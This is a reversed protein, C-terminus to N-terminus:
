PKSCLKNIGNYISSDGFNRACEVVLIDSINYESFFNKIQESGGHFFDPNILIVNEYYPTLWPVLAKSYEDGIVVLTKGNKGDGQLISHSFFSGIFIDYGRRSLAVTPAKYTLYENHTIRATITQNNPVGQLIYYNVYDPFDKLSEPADPLQRLAGSYHDFRYGYYESIGKMDIGASKCFEQAGYYAGLATWSTDTRFFLYNGKHKLLAGAADISKVDSPMGAYIEAIAGNIDDSYQKYIGDELSIRTPVLMLYKNVGDPISTMVNKLAESTKYISGANYHFRELVRDKFYVYSESVLAPETELQGGGPKGDVGFVPEKVLAEKGDLTNTSENVTKLVATAYISATIVAVAVLTSIVAPWVRRRIYRERLRLRSIFRMMFRYAKSFKVEPSCEGITESSVYGFVTCGKNFVAKGRVVVSKIKGPQGITVGSEAYLGGQTFVSGYVRANKGLYIDGEAFINGFVKSNDCLRIGKHSRIHGTVTLHELVSLAHTTIISGRFFGDKDATDNSVYRINRSRISERPKLGADMSLENPYSKEKGPQGFFISPAYLRRFRCNSGVIIKTSSSASIGLDCGDHVTLTGEADVWRLIRIDRDLVLDKKCCIARVAEIGSLYGNQCAYVEKEFRIVGRPNFDQNEAYVISSCINPYDALKDAELISEPRSLLIKGSGDYDAWKKDFLSTFSKVFYRPDKVRSQEIKLVEGSGKRLSFLSFAIPFLIMVVFVAFSIYIVIM